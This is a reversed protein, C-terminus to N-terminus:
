KKATVTQAVTEVSVPEAAKNAKTFEALKDLPVGMAAAYREMLAKERPPLDRFVVTTQKVPDKGVMRQAMKTLGTSDDPLALLYAKIRKFAQVQEKRIAEDLAEKDDKKTLGFTQALEKRKGMTMSGGVVAGDKNKIPALGFVREISPTNVFITTDFLPKPEVVTSVAENTQEAVASM